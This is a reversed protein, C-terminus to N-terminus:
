PQAPLLEGATHSPLTARSFRTRTTAVENPARRRLPGDSLAEIVAEIVMDAHVTALDRDLRKARLDEVVNAHLRGLYAWRKEVTRIARVAQASTNVLKTLSTEDM